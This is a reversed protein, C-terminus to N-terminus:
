RSCECECEYLCVIRNGNEMLGKAGTLVFAIQLRVCPQGHHVDIIAKLVYISINVQFNQVAACLIHVNYDCYEHM